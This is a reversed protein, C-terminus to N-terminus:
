NTFKFTSLIQTLLKEAEVKNSDEYHLTFSYKKGEVSFSFFIIKKGESNCNESKSGDYYKLVINTDNLTQNETKILSLCELGVTEGEIWISMDKKSSQLSYNPQETWDNPIQFSFNTNKSYTKWDATEDNIAEPTANGNYIDPDKPPIAPSSPNLEKTISSRGLYYGGAIGGVLILAILIGLFVFLVKHSKKPKNESNAVLTPTSTPAPQNVIQNTNPEM